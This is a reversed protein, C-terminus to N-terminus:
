IGPQFYSKVQTFSIIQQQKLSRYLQFCNIDVPFRMKQQSFLLKFGQCFGKIMNNIRGVKIGYWMGKILTGLLYIILYQLPANCFFFVLDNQRGFIDAKASIRNPPQLHHIPDATGLRVFYGQQLLRIAVDGEEGMYFFFERYGGVDLFKQRNVAHSAAVFAHTLYINKRDPAQTNIINNHLINIFPIAVIATKDDFETLTQELTHPSQLISDDDLPFVIETKALEIGRNRQYCPGKNESSRHYKITSFETAMMTETGDTSADDMVIIDIPVTQKQAAQIAQRLIDQRNYTTFVITAAPKM